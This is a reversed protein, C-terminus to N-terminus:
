IQNFIGDNIEALRSKIKEVDKTWGNLEEEEQSKVDKIKRLVSEIENVKDKITEFNKQAAQFKDIRVFIPESQHQTPIPPTPITPRQLEPRPLQKHITPISPMVPPSPISDQLSHKPPIISEVEPAEEIVPLFKSQEYVENEGSSPTDAVASKVMEQNFNDNRHNVPFSPLEPLEKKPEPQELKPLEPLTPFTPIRPVEEKKSFLGM